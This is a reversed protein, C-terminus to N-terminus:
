TDFNLYLQPTKFEDLNFTYATDGTVDTTAYILDAVSVEFYGDATPALTVSIEFTETQGEEILFRADANVIGSLTAGSTSTIVSGLVTEAGAIDLDHEATGAETPATGDLYIDGDFATVDFKIKFTGQDHDNTGAPDGSHTVTASASVFEVMMGVDFLGHAEGTASGTLDAAALSEGTEDEADIADVNTTTIAAMITDGNDLAGTIDELDVAIVFDATDGDDIEIDLDTFTIAGDTPVDVSDLEDGNEDLLMARIVIVAEDTEGTTTIVAPIDDVTIDSGDAELTFALIEVDETDTTGSEVDIAHAENIADADDGDTLSVDLEVDNASAFTNVDWTFADTLTDESITAGDADMFRVSVFDLAWDDGADGSDINNVGTVAVVLEGTDGARIIAGDDLSVTKTWNNDDNFEDADLRAVEEGDLWISVETIFEDLDDNTPQTSFDLRVATLEIDSGDDVEIEIGAIEVDEQDEGVEENSYSSIEDFSDISGAGGELEGGTSGGTDGGTSGGTSGGLSANVKARTIPGFYGVAPTIGNAAQYSGLAAATQSGFYGTAGAPISYGGSILWNQLRTVEAGSAGITMDMTFAAGTTTSGGSLAQLQALLAAVQAELEAVTAAKAPVAFAFTSFVLGLGALVAASKAVVNKNAISM